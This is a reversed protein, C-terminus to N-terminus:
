TQGVSYLAADKCGPLVLRRVDVSANAEETSIQAISSGSNLSGRSVSYWMFQESASLQYPSWQLEGAAAGCQTM